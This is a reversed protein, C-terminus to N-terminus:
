FDWHGLRGGLGILDSVLPFLHSGPMLIKLTGSPIETHWQPLHCWQTLFASSTRLGTVHCTGGFPWVMEGPLCVLERSLLIM